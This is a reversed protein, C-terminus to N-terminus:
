QNWSTPTEPAYCYCYKNITLSHKLHQCLALHSMHLKNLTRKIAIQVANKVKRSAPAIKRAGGGPIRSRKLEQELSQREGEHENAQATKGQAKLSKILRDLEEIRQAFRQRGILDLEDGLDYDPSDLADGVEDGESEPGCGMTIVDKSKRVPSSADNCWVAYAKRLAEVSITTGPSGLLRHLYFLGVSHTKGVTKGQYTLTWSNGECHFVNKTGMAEIGDRDAGSSCSRLPQPLLDLDARIEPLWSWNVLEEWNVEKGQRLKEAANLLDANHYPGGGNFMGLMAVKGILRGEPRLQDTLPYGGSGCRPIFETNILGVTAAAQAALQAGSLSERDTEALDWRKLDERSLFDPESTLRARILLRIYRAVVHRFSGLDFDPAFYESDAIM